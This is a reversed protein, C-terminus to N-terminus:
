RFVGSKPDPASLFVLLTGASYFILLPWGVIILLVATAPAKGDKGHSKHLALLAFGQAVAAAAILAVLGWRGAETVDLPMGMARLVKPVVFLFCFAAVTLVVGRLFLRGRETTM